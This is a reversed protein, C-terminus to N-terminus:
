GPNQTKHSRNYIIYSYITPILAAVAVSIMMLIFAPTGGIFSGIMSLIGALVFLRGGLRHTKLWVDEDALTWPTKIGVFYNHRIKGMYNGFVIFMLSISFTIIFDVKVKYGLSALMVVGYIITFLIVFVARMVRYAGKFKGYNNRRPDILPTVLMLTYIGANMLPLLFISGKGGYSDIEGSINWHMPIKDPLRGYVAIASLLAAAIIVILWIDSKLAQKLDYHGENM